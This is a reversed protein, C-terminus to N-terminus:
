GRRRCRGGRRRTRAAEDLSIKKGTKGDTMRWATRRDASWQAGEGVPQDQQYRGGEATGDAFYYTGQGEKKVAKLGRTGTASSATCPARAWGGGPGRTGTAPPSTTPARARRGGARRPGRVHRRQRAGDDGPGRSARTPRGEGVLKGGEVKLCYTDEGGRPERRHDQPVAQVDHAGRREEQRGDDAPRPAARDARRARRPPQPPTRARAQM